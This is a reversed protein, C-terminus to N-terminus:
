ESEASLDSTPEADPPSTHSAPTPVSQEEGDLLVAFRDGLRVIEGRGISRGGVALTVTLGQSIQGLDFAGREIMLSLEDQTVAVDSLQVAVPVTLAGTEDITAADPSSHTMPQDLINGLRGTSPDYALPKASITDPCDALPWPAPELILLDGAALRQADPLPLRAAQFRLPMMVPASSIQRSRVQARVAITCLKAGGHAVDIVPAAYPLAAFDAFEAALGTAHEIQTLLGEHASVIEVLKEATEGELPLPNAIPRFALKTGLFWKAGDAPASHITADFGAVKLNAAAVNSWCVLEVDLSPLVSTVAAPTAADNPENIPQSAAAETM